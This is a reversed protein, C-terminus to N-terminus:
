VEKPDDVATAISLANTPCVMVCLGCGTCRSDHIVLADAEVAVCDTASQRCLAVCADCLICEDQQVVAVRREISRVAAAASSVYPLAAGKASAVSRYGASSLRTRLDALIPQLVNIGRIIASTAVQVSTAGYMLYDIVDEGSSVGGVATVECGLEGALRAVALRNMPLLAPGSLGMPVVSGSSRGHVEQAPPLANITNTVVIAKAGADIAAAGAEVLNGSGANLKVSVPTDSGSCAASVVQALLEPDDGILYGRNKEPAGHPCSVNLEIASAGAESVMKTSSEWDAPDPGEMVSVTLCFDSPVGARVAPIERTCWHDFSGPTVLENNLIGLRRWGVRRAALMAPALNRVYQPNGTITKTVAGAWGVQAAAIILEARGTPPASALILPHVIDRDM